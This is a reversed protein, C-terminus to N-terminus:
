SRRSLEYWLSDAEIWVLRIADDLGLICPGNLNLNGSDPLTVTNTAHSGMIDIEQLNETGAQIGTTTDVTVAGSLGEVKFLQRKATTVTITGGAAVQQDTGESLGAASSNDAIDESLSRNLEQLLYTLKDVADEVAQTIYTQGVAFDTAQTVPTERYIYLYHDSDPATVMTLTTGAVTFETGNTLATEALTAINILKAKVHSTSIFPFTISFAVIVGNGTYQVYPTTSSVSM